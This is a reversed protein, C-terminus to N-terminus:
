DRPKIKWSVMSQTSVLIIDLQMVNKNTVLGNSKLLNTENFRIKNIKMGILIQTSRRSRILIMDTDQVSKICIKRTKISYNKFITKKTNGVNEKGYLMLLTHKFASQYKIHKQPCDRTM